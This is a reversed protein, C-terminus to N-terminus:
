CGGGRTDRFRRQSIMRRLEGLNRAAKESDGVCVTKQNAYDIVALCFYAPQGGSQYHIFCKTDSVGAFELRRFPLGPVINDSAQFAEGPNALSIEGPKARSGSITVFWSEFVTTCTNPIEDVRRVIKFDGDLLHVQVDHSVPVTRLYFTGPIDPLAPKPSELPPIPQRLSKWTRIILFLGFVGVGAALVSLIRKYKAIQMRM